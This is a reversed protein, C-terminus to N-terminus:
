GRPEGETTEWALGGLFLKRLTFYYYLKHTASSLALCCQSRLRYQTTVSHQIDRDSM